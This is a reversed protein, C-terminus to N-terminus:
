RTSNGGGREFYRTWVNLHNEQSCAHWSQRTSSRRDCNWRNFAAHLCLFVMKPGVGPLSCLRIYGRRDGLLYSVLAIRSLMRGADLLAEISLMRGLAAHLKDVAVPGRKYSRRQDLIGADAFRANCLAIVPSDTEEWKATNFGDQRCACSHTCV